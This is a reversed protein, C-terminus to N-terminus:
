GAVAAAKGLPMFIPSQSPLLKFKKMAGFSQIAGVKQVNMRSNTDM